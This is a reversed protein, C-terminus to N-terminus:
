RRRRLIFALPLLSVLMTTGPEPVVTIYGDGFSAAAGQDAGIELSGVTKGATVFGLDQYSITGDGIISVDLGGLAGFSATLQYAGGVEIFGIGSGNVVVNWNTSDVNTLVISILPNNATDDLNIFYDNDGPYNDTPTISFYWEGITAGPVGVSATSTTVSFDGDGASIDEYGDYLAGVGVGNLGGLTAYFGLKSSAAQGDSQTWSGDLQDGPTVVPIAPVPWPIVAAHSACVLSGFLVLSSFSQNKM